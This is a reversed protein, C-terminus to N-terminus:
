MPLAQYGGFGLSWCGSFDWIEINLVAGGIKPGKLNSNGQLETTPVQLKELGRNQRAKM